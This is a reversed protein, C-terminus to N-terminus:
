KPFRSIDCTAKDNIQRKERKIPQLKWKAMLSTIKKIWTWFTQGLEWPTGWGRCLINWSLLRLPPLLNSSFICIIIRMWYLWSNQLRRCANTNSTYVVGLTCCGSRCRSRGNNPKESLIGHIRPNFVLHGIWVTGISSGWNLDWWCPGRSSQWGSLWVGRWGEWRRRRGWRIERGLTRMIGQSRWGSCLMDIWCICWCLNWRLLWRLWTFNVQIFTLTRNFFDNLFYHNWWLKTFCTAHNTNTRYPIVQLVIILKWLHTDAAQHPIPENIVIWANSTSSEPVQTTAHTKGGIWSTHSRGHPVIRQIESSPHAHWQHGLISHVM